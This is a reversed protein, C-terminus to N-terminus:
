VVQEIYNFNTWIKRGDPNASVKVQIQVRFGDQQSKRAEVDFIVFKSNLDRDNQGEYFAIGLENYKFMTKKNIFDGIQNLQEAEDEDGGGGRKRKNRKSRNRKNVRKSFQKQSKKKGGKINTALKDKSLSKKISKNGIPM